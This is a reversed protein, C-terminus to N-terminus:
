QGKKRHRIFGIVSLLLVVGLWVRKGVPELPNFLGYFAQWIMILVFLLSIIFSAVYSIKKLLWHKSLQLFIVGISAYILIYSQPRIVQHIYVLPPLSYFAFYMWRHDKSIEQNEQQDDLCGEKIMQIYYSKCHCCIWDTGFQVMLSEDFVTRCKKCVKKRTKVKM